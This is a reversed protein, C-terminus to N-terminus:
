SRVFVGTAMVTVNGVDDRVAKGQIVITQLEKVGLLERADVEVLAGADDVVKVLITAEPLQDTECCYDWPTQCHDGEIDSCAKLELDVLSFAARGDVWPTVSGGIRGVVVVTQDDQASQRVARVDEADAPEAALVYNGAPLADSSQESQIAPQQQCGAIFLASVLGLQSLNSYNM